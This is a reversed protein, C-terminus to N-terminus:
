MNNRNTNYNLAGVTCFIFNGVGAFCKLTTEVNDNPQHSMGVYPLMLENVNHIEINSNAVYILTSDVYHIEVKVHVINSLTSMKMETTM